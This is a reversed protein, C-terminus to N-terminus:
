ERRDIRARRAPRKMTRVKLPMADAETTLLLMLVSVPSHMVAPVGAHSEAATYPAFPKLPTRVNEASSAFVVTLTTSKM